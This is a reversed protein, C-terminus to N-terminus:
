HKIFRQKINGKEGKLELIYMGSNLQSVDIQNAFPQNIVLRGQLDYITAMSYKDKAIINLIQESSSFYTQSEDKSSSENLGVSTCNLVYNDPNALKAAYRMTTDGGYNSFDGVAFLTDGYFAISYVPENALGMFGTALACWNTGDWRAVSTAPKGGAETFRGCVYLYDGHVLLDVVSTNPGSLGYSQSADGLSHWNTGDWAAIGNGPNLQHTSKTFSGGVILEGKYIVMDQVVDNPNPIGSGVKVWASGDYVAIANIDNTGFGSYFQGGVYLKGQYKIVQYIHNASGITSFEPINYVTNWTQGDYKILSHASIGFASDFSGGLYLENEIEKLIYGTGNSISGESLGSGISVWSQGNWKSISKVPINGVKSFYGTIYIESNFNIISNTYINGTVTYPTDCNWSVACGLQYITDPSYQAVGFYPINNILNFRGVIYMSNSISDQYLYTPLNWQKFNAVKQWPQSFTGSVFLILCMKILILRKM